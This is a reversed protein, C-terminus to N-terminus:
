REFFRKHRGNPEINEDTNKEHENPRALHISVLGPLLRARDFYLLVVLLSDEVKIVKVM